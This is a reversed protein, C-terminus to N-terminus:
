YNKTLSEVLLDVCRMIIKDQIENELRIKDQDTVPRYDLEFIENEYIILYNSNNNNHSIDIIFITKGNFTEGIM